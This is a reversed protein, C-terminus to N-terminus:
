PSALAWFQSPTIHKEPVFHRGIRLRQRGAAIARRRYVEKGAWHIMWRSPAGSPNAQWYRENSQELWPNPQGSGQNPARSCLNPVGFGQDPAGFRQDPAIFWFNKTRFLRNKLPKIREAFITSFLKSFVSEWTYYLILAFKTNAAYHRLPEGTAPGAM